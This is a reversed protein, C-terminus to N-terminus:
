YCQPMFTSLYPTNNELGPFVKTIVFRFKDGPKLQTGRFNVLNSVNFIQAQPRNILKLSFVKTQNFFVDMEKIRGNKRWTSDSATYGNKVYFQLRLSDTDNKTIKQIEFSFWVPTHTNKILAAWPTTHDEDILSHSSYPNTNGPSLETSAIIQVTNPCPSGFNNIETTGKSKNIKAYIIPVPRNNEAPSLDSSNKRRIHDPSYRLKLDITRERTIDVLCKQIITGITKENNNEFKILSECEDYRFKKWNKQTKKLSARWYNIILKKEGSAKIAADAQQVAESLNMESIKYARKFCTLKENDNNKEDCIKYLEPLPTGGLVPVLFLTLTLLSLRGIM